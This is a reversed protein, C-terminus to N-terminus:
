TPDPESWTVTVEVGRELLASVREYMLKDLEGRSRVVKIVVNPPVPLTPLVPLTPPVLPTSPVPPVPPVPSSPTLVRTAETELRRRTADYGNAGLAFEDTRLCSRMPEVVGAGALILLEWNTDHLSRTVAAASSLSKAVAEDTTTMAANALHEIVALPASNDGSVANVLAM